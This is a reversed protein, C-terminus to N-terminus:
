RKDVTAIHSSLYRSSLEREVFERIQAAKDLNNRVRQSNIAVDDSKADELSDVRDGVPEPRFTYEKGKNDKWPM